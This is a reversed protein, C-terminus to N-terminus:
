VAVACQLLTFFLLKFFLILIYPVNKVGLTSDDLRCM